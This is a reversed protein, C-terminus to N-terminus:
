LHPFLYTKLGKKFAPLSTSTRISIPIKNWFKPAALSFAKDAASKLSQNLCKPEELRTIDSASRLGERRASHLSIHTALYEPALGALCKYIYLAVKYHIRERVSLWHLKQLCPSAHDRKSALFILKAAWNQWLIM